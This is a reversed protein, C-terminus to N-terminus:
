PNNQKSLRDQLQKEWNEKIKERPLNMDPSDRYPLAYPSHELKYKEKETLPPIDGEITAVTSYSKRGVPEVLGIKFGAEVLGKRVALSASYTALVARRDMLKKVSSFMEVTWMETNVKPSFADYFVADFPGKLQKIIQRADGFIVRLIFNTGEATYINEEFGGSLIQSYIDRLNEPISLERIKKFIDRDKEISTIELFAQPNNKQATEVAVAVNYGLGFGVDLVRVREKEKVLRDIGCPLVFKHLSETYAGAKTSHYAENFESNIFTETGDATKIKSDM